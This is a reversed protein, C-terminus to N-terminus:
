EDMYASSKKKKRNRQKQVSLYSKHLFHAELIIRQALTCTGYSKRACHVAFHQADAPLKFLHKDVAEPDAEFNPSPM